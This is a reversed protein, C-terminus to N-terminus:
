PSRLYASSMYNGSQQAQMRRLMADRRAKTALDRERYGMPDVPGSTPNTRGGGYIKGGAAYPNFAM